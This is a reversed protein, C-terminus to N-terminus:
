GIGLRSAAALVGTSKCVSKPVQDTASCIAATIENAAGLVAQAVTTTPDSLDSAVKGLSDGQLVEPSFGVGAGTVLLRNAVDVFPLATPESSFPASDYRKFLAKEFSPLDEIVPFGAPARTSPREGYEETASFTVYRSRYRSGDFSFTPTDGFAEFKSSSTAGLASFTGFRGLAAVLVWREAACYPCFEGGVYVVDPRGDVVLSPQGSLVTPAPGNPDPTGVADFVSAPLSTVQRVVDLPAPAVPPPAVTTAGRTIKLVLLVVVILLILVVFAWTVLAMPMRRVRAPAAAAENSTTSEEPNEM